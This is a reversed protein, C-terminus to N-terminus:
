EQEENPDFDEYLWLKEKVDPCGMVIRRADNSRMTATCPSPGLITEVEWWDAGDDPHVLRMGKQVYPLPRMSKTVIPEDDEHM